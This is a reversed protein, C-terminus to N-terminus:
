SLSLSCYLNKTGSILTIHSENMNSKKVLYIWIVQTCCQNCTKNKKRKINVVQDLYEQEDSVLFKSWPAFVTSLQQSPRIATSEKKQLYLEKKFWTTFFHNFSNYCRRLEKPDYNQILNWKIYISTFISVVVVRHELGQIYTSLITCIFSFM